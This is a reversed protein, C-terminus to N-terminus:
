CVSAVARSNGVCPVAINEQWSQLTGKQSFRKMEEPDTTQFVLREDAQGYVQDPLVFMRNTWGPQRVSVARAEPRAAILYAALGDRARKSLEIEAGMKLLSARYSDGASALLEMPLAWSKEVGDPDRFRLETGWNSSEPDRTLATVDIRSSLRFQRSKGDKDEITQFVGAQNVNFGGAISYEDELQM